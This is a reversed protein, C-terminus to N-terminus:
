IITITMEDQCLREQSTGTWEKTNYETTKYRQLQNLLFYHNM